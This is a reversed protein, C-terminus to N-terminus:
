FRLVVCLTTMFAPSVIQTEVLGLFVMVATQVQVETRDKLTHDENDAALGPSIVCIHALHSCVHRIEVHAQVLNYGIVTTDVSPDTKSHECDQISRSNILRGSPDAKVIFVLTFINLSSWSQEM